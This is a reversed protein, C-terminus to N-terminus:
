GEGTLTLSIDKLVRRVLIKVMATRYGASARIDTIPKADKAAAEGASHLLRDTLDALNKGKLLAEAQASRIVTPAVAGMAIAM